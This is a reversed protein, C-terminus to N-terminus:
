RSCRAQWRPQRLETLGLHPSDANRKRTANAARAIASSACPQPQKNVIPPSSSAGSVTTDVLAM